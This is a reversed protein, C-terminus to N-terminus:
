RSWKDRLSRCAAVGRVALERAGNAISKGVNKDSTEDSAKSSGDDSSFTYASPDLVPNRPSYRPPYVEDEVYPAYTDDLLETFVSRRHIQQHLGFLTNTSQKPPYPPVAELCRPMMMGEDISCKDEDSEVDNEPIEEFGTTEWAALTTKVWSAVFESRSPLPSCVRLGEKHRPLNLLRRSSRRPPFLAAATVQHVKLTRPDIQAKDGSM